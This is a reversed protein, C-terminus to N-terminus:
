RMLCGVCPGWGTWYVAHKQQALLKTPLNSVGWLQLGGNKYQTHCFRVHSHPLDNVGKEPEWPMQADPHSLPPATHPVLSPSPFRVM